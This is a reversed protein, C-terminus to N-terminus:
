IGLERLSKNRNHSKIISDRVSNEEDEEYWDYEEMDKVLLDNVLDNLQYTEAWNEEQSGYVSPLLIRDMGHGLRNLFTSQKLIDDLQADVDNVLLRLFNRDTAAKIYCSGSGYVSYENHYIIDMEDETLEEGRKRKEFVETKREHTPANRVNDIFSKLYSDRTYNGPDKLNIDEWGRELFELVETRFFTMYLDEYLEENKSPKWDRTRGIHGIIDEIGEGFFKELQEVNSDREISDIRGYDYYKGKIPFGFPSFFAQAGDNTCILNRHEDLSTSGTYNMKPVLLLVSTKQRTLTM